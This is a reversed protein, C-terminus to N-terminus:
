DCFKTVPLPDRAGKGEWFMLTKDMGKAALYAVVAKAREESLSPSFREEEVKDTHGVVIISGVRVKRKAIEETLQDFETTGQVKLVAAGVDFASDGQALAQFRIAGVAAPAPKALASQAKPAPKLTTGSVEVGVRRNPQLCETLQGPPPLVACGSALLLIVAACCSWKHTLM